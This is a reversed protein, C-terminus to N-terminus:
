VHRKKSYIIALLGFIFVASSIGTGISFIRIAIAEFFGVPFFSILMSSADFSWNGQPFFISHFLNFTAEFHIFSVSVILFFLIMSFLSGRFLWRVILRFKRQFAFVFLVSLFIVGTIIEILYALCFLKKVDEMHSKEALSFDSDLSNKGQIFMYVNQVYKSSLESNVIWQHIMYETYFGSSFSYYVLPSLLLLFFLSGSFLPLLFHYIFRRYSFTIM